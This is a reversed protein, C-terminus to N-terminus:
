GLDLREPVTALRVSGVEHFDVAQGTEAELQKYLEVGYMLLRTINLSASFQTCLGAAHSTSGATGSSALCSDV